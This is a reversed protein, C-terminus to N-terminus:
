GFYPFWDPLLGTSSVAFIAAAIALKAGVLIGAYKWSFQNSNTDKM